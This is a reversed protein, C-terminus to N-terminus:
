DLPVLLEAFADLGFAGQGVGAQEVVWALVRPTLHVGFPFLTCRAYYGAVLLPEIFFPAGALAVAWTWSQQLLLCLAKSGGSVHSPVHDRKAGVASRLAAPFVAEVIVATFDMAVFVMFMGTAHGTAAWSLYEHLLGSMVFAAATYLVVRVGFSSERPLLLDVAGHGLGEFYFRVLQHWRHSWFERISTGAQPRDFVHAPYLEVVPALSPWFVAAISLLLM